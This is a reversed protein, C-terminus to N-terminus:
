KLIKAPFQKYQENWQKVNLVDFYDIMSEKLTIGFLESQQELKFPLRKKIRNRIAKGTNKDSLRAELLYIYVKSKKIKRISHIFNLSDYYKHAIKNCIEDDLVKFKEVGKSRISPNKYEIFFIKDNDEAVFDVDSLINNHVVKFIERLKDTAWIANSFDIQFMKHEDLFIKDDNCM